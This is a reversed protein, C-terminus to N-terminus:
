TQASTAKSNIKELLLELWINMDRYYIFSAALASTTIFAHGLVGVIMMWSTDSPTLWLFNFGQSLVLISIVFFSSTPLTFRSLRFSSLISQILNEKKVFIGHASFFFPVIIWMAFFALFLLAFQALGANIQMFIAFVILLPIGLMALIISLTVALLTAQFVSNSAWLLNHEKDQLAVKAVWTLYISGLIWGLLTLGAIWMFFALSSGVQYSAPEGLPTLAPFVQNMLSSIGIPFTRLISFLNIGLSALEGLSDQIRQIETAPVLNERTLEDFMTHVIRLLKEVRLRPGFWLFVDLLVPLLIIGIHNATIDLGSKLSSIIGPPPSIKEDNLFKM